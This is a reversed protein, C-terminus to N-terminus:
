VQGRTNIGESREPLAIRAQLIPPRWKRQKSEASRHRSVVAQDFEGLRRNLEFIQVAVYIVLLLGVTVEAPGPDAVLAVPLSLLAAIGCHTAARRVEHRLVDLGLRFAREEEAWPRHTKDDITSEPHRGEVSDESGSESILRRIRDENNRERPTKRRPSDQDTM